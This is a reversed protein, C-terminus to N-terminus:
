PTGEAPGALVVSDTVDTGQTVPAKRPGYKLALVPGIESNGTATVVIVKVYRKSAKALDIALVTNDKNTGTVESGEVDSYGDAVGDDSSQELHATVAGDAASVGIPIICLAGEYDAMDIAASTTTAQGDATRNVVQDIYVNKLLSKIQKNM